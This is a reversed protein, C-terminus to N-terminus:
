PELIVKIAGAKRDRAVMFAQKVEALPFRHTILASAIGPNRSLLAAAFDVDRGSGDAACTFSNVITLEKMMASLQPFSVNGWHTGLMLIKGNPRCLQVAQNVADETGACEIVLDYLGDIERAGILSGAEIQHHYRASLGVETYSSIAVAVASLGIAGGGIVAVRGKGNVCAKRLGHMAVALPEILCADKVDVNSPLYVLNREPVIVEDAMGGNRGIGLTIVLQCLNYNGGRCYECEGCPILPEVAVPTGDDLVGAIEHGVIYPLPLKMELLHLDSGCIGASKVRVKKGEDPLEQMERLEVKGEKYYVARM